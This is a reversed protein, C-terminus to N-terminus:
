SLSNGFRILEEHSRVFEPLKSDIVKAEIKVHDPLNEPDMGRTIVSVYENSDPVTYRTVEATLANAAMSFKVKFKQLSPNIFNHSEDGWLEVFEYLPALYSRSFPLLFDHEKYHKIIGSDSFLAKFSNFLDKDHETMVDSGSIFRRKLWEFSHEGAKQLFGTAFLAVASFGAGWIFSPWDTPLVSMM